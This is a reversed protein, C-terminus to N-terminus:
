NLGFLFWIVLGVVCLIGGIIKTERNEDLMMYGGFFPMAFIALFLVALGEMVRSTNENKMHLGETMEKIIHNDCLKLVNKQVEM